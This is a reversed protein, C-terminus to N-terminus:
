PTDPMRQLISVPPQVNVVGAKTTWPGFGDADIRTNVCITLDQHWPVLWNADVTKDFLTGKVRMADPGLIGRALAVVKPSSSAEAVAPVLSLLNRIAYV